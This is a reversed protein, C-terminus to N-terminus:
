EKSMRLIASTYEPFDLMVNQLKLDRHIVLVNMMDNFGEVLQIMIKQTIIPTLRYQKMEMLEKLDNGNCFEM